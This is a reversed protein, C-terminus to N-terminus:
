LLEPDPHVDGTSGLVRLEAVQQNRHRGEVDSLEDATGLFFLEQLNARGDVPQQDVDRAPEPSREGRQPRDEVEATPGPPREAVEQSVRPGDGEGAAIDVRAGDAPPRSRKWEAVEGRVGVGGRGREGGGG